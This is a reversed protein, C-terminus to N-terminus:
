GGGHNALEREVRALDQETDVGHGPAADVVTVHIAIGLALARLQELSEAREAPRPAESALRRLVGARYAYLGLHRLFPVGAPLAPPAQQPLAAFADRAWPIPARSFYTACGADDVVVKVVNPDFVDRPDRIPTAATAIGAHPNAALAAAVGRILAADMCPEDGQLNVVIADDDWGLTDVVEAIRDTGSACAPDTMVARGGLGAIADCIRQDDAAVIVERAGADVGRQWAHAILPKGALMRLPKGPLRTAGYRAPIIVDFATDGDGRAERARLIADAVERVAGHGGAARTVWAARQVVEAHGDAVTIPVGVRSLAALDLVDDGVFAADDAAVGLAGCLEDLAAAKDDRGPYFHRIKLDAIRRALAESRRATIVAVEIGAEMLLRIGMGDRVHFAKSSEGHEGYHLTGDTLVGDVDLVLLRIRSLRERLGAPLTSM